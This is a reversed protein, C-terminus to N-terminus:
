TQRERNGHEDPVNFEISVPPVQLVLWSRKPVLLMWYTRCLVMLVLLVGRGIRMRLGFHQLRCGFPRRVRRRMERRRLRLRLSRCRMSRAM